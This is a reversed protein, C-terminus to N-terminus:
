GPRRAARLALRTRRRKAFSRFLAPLPPAMLSAVLGLILRNHDLRAPPLRIAEPKMCRPCRASHAERPKAVFLRTTCVLAALVARAALGFRRLRLDIGALLALV